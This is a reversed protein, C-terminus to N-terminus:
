NRTFEGIVERLGTLRYYDRILWTTRDYVAQQAAVVSGTARITTEYAQRIETGINVKAVGKSIAALLYEQRIGTGGHLVLPIGTSRALQEIRKIDLRAEVKKQDKLAGSIAGHVNGVAVSLWDCGTTTVFRHAEDPDTFGMGTSFIEDYTPLPRNEHGLVAGLEAECPLGAIHAIDVVRKTAEANRAYPLRSGDVM